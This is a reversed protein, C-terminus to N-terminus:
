KRRGRIRATQLGYLFYHRSFDPLCEYCFKRGEIEYFLEEPYVAGGCMSCRCVVPERQRDNRQGQETDTVGKQNEWINGNITM